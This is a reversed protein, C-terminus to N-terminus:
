RSRTGLAEHLVGDHIRDTRNDGIDRDGVKGNPKSAWGIVIAHCARCRLRSASREGQLALFLCERPEDRVPRRCVGTSKGPIEHAESRLWEFAGWLLGGIVIM